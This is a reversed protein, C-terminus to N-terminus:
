GKQADASDFVQKFDELTMHGIDRGDFIQRTGFNHGIMFTVTGDEIATPIVSRRTSGYRGRYMEGVVVPTTADLAM